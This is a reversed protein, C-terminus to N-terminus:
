SPDLEFKLKRGFKHVTGLLKTSQCRFNKTFRYILKDNQRELEYPEKKM